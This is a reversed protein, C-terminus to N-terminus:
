DLQRQVNHHGSHLRCSNHQSLGFPTKLPSPILWHPWLRNAPGEEAEEVALHCISRAEEAFQRSPPKLSLLNAAAKVHHLASFVYSRHLRQPSYFLHRVRDEVYNQLTSWQNCGFGALCSRSDVLCSRRRRYLVLRLVVDPLFRTGSVLRAKRSLRDPKPSSYCRESINRRKPGFQHSLNARCEFITAVTRIDVFNGRCHGLREFACLRTVTAWLIM